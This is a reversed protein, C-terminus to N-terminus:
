FRAGVEARGVSIVGLSHVDARVLLHGGDYQWGVGPALSAMGVRLSHGKGVAFSMSVESFVVPLFFATEEEPDNIAFLPMTVDLAVREWRASLAGGGAIVGDGGSFDSLTSGAVGTFVGLRVVKSVAGSWSVAVDGAAGGDLLLSPRKSGDYNMLVSAFARMVPSFRSPSAARAIM